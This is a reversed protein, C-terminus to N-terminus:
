LTLLQHWFSDTVPINRLADGLDKSGDPLRICDVTCGATRLTATWNAAADRGALDADPIIRVRRGALKALEEATFRSQASAAALVAVGHLWGAIDDARCIVEAAELMSVAGETLLVPVGPKGMGGPNLFRGESGPLNLAKITEGNPRIFPKGDMRRVQGFTGCCLALCEMERWRCRWLHRHTAVLYVAPVSVGRLDAVAALDDPSPRHFLPWRRRKMAKQAAEDGPFASPRDAPRQTGREAREKLLYGAPQSSRAASVLKTRLEGATWPPVCAANWELLLPLAQEITMDFGKVLAVAAKYTACDGGSFAIAPPLTALYRGARNTIDTQMIGMKNNSAAPHRDGITETNEFVRVM